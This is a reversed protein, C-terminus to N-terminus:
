ADFGRSWSRKAAPQDMQHSQASRDQEGALPYGTELSHSRVGRARGLADDRRLERARSENRPAHFCAFDGSVELCYTKM